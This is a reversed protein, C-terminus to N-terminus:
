SMNSGSPGHSSDAQNLGMASTPLGLANAITNTNHASLQALSESQMMQMVHDPWCLTLVALHLKLTSCCADLSAADHLSTGPVSMM